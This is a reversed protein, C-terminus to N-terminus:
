KEEEMGIGMMREEHNRADRAEDRADAETIELQEIMPVYETTDPSVKVLIAFSKPTVRAARSYSYTCM